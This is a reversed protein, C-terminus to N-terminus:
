HCGGNDANNRGGKNLQLQLSILVNSEGGFFTRRSQLMIPHKKYLGRREKMKKDIGKEKVVPYHPSIMLRTAIDRVESREGQALYRAPLVKVGYVKM